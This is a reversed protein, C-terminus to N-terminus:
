ILFTCPLCRHGTGPSHEKTEARVTLIHERYAPSHADSERTVKLRRGWAQLLAAPVVTHASVLVRNSLVRDEGSRDPGRQRSGLRPLGRDALLQPRAVECGKGRAASSSLDSESPM